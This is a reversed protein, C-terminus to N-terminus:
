RKLWVSPLKDDEFGLQEATQRSTYFIGAIVVLSGATNGAHSFDEMPCFSLWGIQISKTKVQKGWCGLNILM